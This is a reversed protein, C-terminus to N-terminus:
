VQKGIKRKDDLYIRTTGFLADKVINVADELESEAEYAIIRYKDDKNWLMTLYEIIKYINKNISENVIKM